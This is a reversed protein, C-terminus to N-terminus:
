ILQKAAFLCLLISGTSIAMFGMNSGFFTASISNAAAAATTTRGSIKKQSKKAAMSIGLQGSHVSRRAGQRLEDEIM